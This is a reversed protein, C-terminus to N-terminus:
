IIAATFTKLTGDSYKIRAKLNNGVEDLYFTISGSDLNADSSPASSDAKLNCGTTSHMRIYRTTMVNNGIGIEMAERGILQLGHQIGILNLVSRLDGLLVSGSTGLSLKNVIRVDGSTPSIVLRGTSTVEFDSYVSGSTYSLRLQPSTSAVELPMAPVSWDTALGIGVNRRPLFFNSGVMLASGSGTYFRYADGTQSVNLDGNNASKITVTGAGASDSFQIGIDPGLALNIGDFILDSTGEITGDGTWVAVQNDAPTGVKYVDGGGTNILINRSM